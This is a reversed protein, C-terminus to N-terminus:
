NCAFCGSERMERLEAAPDANWKQFFTRAIQSIAPLLAPMKSKKDLDHITAISLQVPLKM